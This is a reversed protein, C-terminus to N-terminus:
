VGNRWVYILACQLNVSSTKDVTKKKKKLLDQTGNRISMSYLSFLATFYIKLITFYNVRVVLTIFSGVSEAGERLIM